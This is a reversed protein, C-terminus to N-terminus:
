SDCTQGTYVYSNDAPTEIPMTFRTGASSAAGIVLPVPEAHRVPGPHRVAPDPRVRRPRGGRRARGPQRLREPAGTSAIAVAASQRASRAGLLMVEARLEPVSLKEVLGQYMSAAMSEMADMVALMDRAPDDSPPIDEDPNGDIHEFIQPVVREMYWSNACDYPEGGAETVLEGVEAAAATHNEILRALLDADTGTLAGSDTITGYVDVITYEISQATRLYVRDDVTRPPCPPRCRPTASGARNARPAAAAAVRPSCRASRSRRAAPSSCSAVVSASQGTPTEHPETVTLRREDREASLPEADNEFMADYDDGRGSVDVLVAAQRAEVVLISAILHAGDIGELERLLETHTAM